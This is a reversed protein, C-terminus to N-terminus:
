NHFYIECKGLEPRSSDTIFLSGSVSQSCQQSIRDYSSQLSFYQMRYSQDNIQVKNFNDSHYGCEDSVGNFQFYLRNNFELGQTNIIQPENTNQQTPMKILITMEDQVRVGMLHCNPTKVEASLKANTYGDTAVAALPLLMASVLFIKIMISKM